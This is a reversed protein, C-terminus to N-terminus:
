SPLQRNNDYIRPSAYSMGALETYDDRRPHSDSFFNFAAKSTKGLKWDTANEGTKFSGHLIHVGFNGLHLLDPLTM